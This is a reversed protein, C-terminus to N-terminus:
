KKEFYSVFTRGYRKTKKLSFAPLNLPLSHEAVILGNAELIDNKAILDAAEAYLASNYPPDMFIFSFTRGCGNLVTEFSSHQVHAKADLRTKKLNANIVRIAQTNTDCFLAFEAGRSLAEIGLAGTGAFLDLVSAGSIDFQIAGFIAEKVMDATPRTNAGSVSELPMGKASGSIVRM